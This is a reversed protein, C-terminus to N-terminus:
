GRLGAVYAESTSRIGAALTVRPERGLARMPAMDLLKRPTGDPRTADWLIEGQYGVTAAILHALEVITLDEGTGINIPTADDHVELLRV